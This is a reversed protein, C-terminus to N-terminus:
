VTDADIRETLREELDLRSPAAACALPEAAHGIAARRAYQQAGKPM